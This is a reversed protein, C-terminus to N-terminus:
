RIWYRLASQADIGRSAPTLRQGTENSLERRVNGCPWGQWCPQHGILETRQEREGSVVKCDAVGPMGARNIRDNSSGCLTHLLAIRLKSQRSLRNSLIQVYRLSGQM